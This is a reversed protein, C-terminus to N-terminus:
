SGGAWSAIPLLGRGSSSALVATWGAVIFARLARPAGEFTARAWHEANRGIAGTDMVAWAAAYDPEALTDLARFEGTVEVRRAGM